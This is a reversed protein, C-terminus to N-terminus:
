DRGSKNMKITKQEWHAVKVLDPTLVALVLLCQALVGEGHLVEGVVVPGFVAFSLSADFPTAPLSGHWVDEFRYAAHKWLWTQATNENWKRLTQWSYKRSPPIFLISSFSSFLAVSAMPSVAADTLAGGYLVMGLHTTAPVTGIGYLM